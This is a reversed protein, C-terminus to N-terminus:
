RRPQYTETKKREKRKNMPFVSTSDKRVPFHVEVDASNSGHSYVGRPDHPYDKSTRSGRRRPEGRDFLFLIVAALVLLALLYEIM